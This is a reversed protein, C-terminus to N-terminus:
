ADLLSPELAAAADQIAVRDRGAQKAAYLAADAEAILRQPTLTASAIATAVGVSVTLRGGEGDAHPLELAHVSARVADGLATASTGMPRYWLLLFEEGGYRACLDLPRRAHGGVAVAVAQLAADGEAHGYRDNYRKFHDVDVM